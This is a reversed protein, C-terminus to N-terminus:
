DHRGNPQGGPYRQRGRRPRLTKMVDAAARVDSTDHGEDFRDFLPGLLEVADQQRGTDRWCRALSTATRLEWSVAGQRGAIELSRKFHAEASERSELTGQSLAIEGQLRYIEALYFCENTSEASLRAGDLARLASHIRGATVHVDVSLCRFWSCALLADTGEYGDLGCRMEELGHDVEGQEALAWGLLMMSQYKWHLFGHETAVAMARRAHDRTAAVDRLHQHLYAAFALAFALTFPHGTREANAVAQQSMTRAQDAYGLFWLVYGLYSMCVIGPDIGHAEVLSSHFDPNYLKIGQEFHDRAAIFRGEYLKPQGLARHAEILLGTRQLAEDATEAHCTNEALELLQNGLQYSRDLDARIFHCVWLGRTAAFTNWIDNLSQGLEQARVYNDEVEQVAYGKAAILPVGLRIRLSLEMSDSSMTGRSSQLLELGRQLHAIAELNAMSEAARAGAKLWYEIAVDCQGAETFHHALLEPEREIKEPHFELM